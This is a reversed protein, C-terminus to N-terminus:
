QCIIVSGRKSPDLVIRTINERTIWFIESQAGWNKHSARVLYQGPEVDRFQFEGKDNSHQSALVRTAGTKLLLIKFGGLPNGDYRRVVGILAPPGFALKEYAPQPGRGCDSPQNAILLTISLVQVGKEPIRIGAIVRTQFGSLSGELDYTGSPANAFEFRGSEDSRVQLVRDLSYLSVLANKVPVNFQDTVLGRLTASNQSRVVPIALLLLLLLAAFLFRPYRKVLPPHRCPWV